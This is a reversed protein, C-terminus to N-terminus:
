HDRELGLHGVAVEPFLDLYPQVLGLGARLIPVVVIERALRRGDHPAVPTDVRQHCTPLDRTAELALLLGLQHALTRFSAATTTRDRLRTLLHAALPHNLLHLM